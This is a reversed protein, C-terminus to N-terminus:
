LEMFFEPDLSKEFGIANQPAFTGSKFGRSITGFLFVEDTPRYNVGFKPTFADWSDDLDLNDDPWGPTPYLLLSVTIWKRNKMVLDHERRWLSCIPSTMSLIESLQM